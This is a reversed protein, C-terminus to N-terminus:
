KNKIDIIGLVRASFEPNFKSHMKISGTVATRLVDLKNEWVSVIMRWTMSVYKDETNFHNDLSMGNELLKSVVHGYLRAMGDNPFSDYENLYEKANRYINEQQLLYTQKENNECFCGLVCFSNDGINEPISDILYETTITGDNVLGFYKEGWSVIDFDSHTM